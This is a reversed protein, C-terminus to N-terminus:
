FYSSHNGFAFRTNIDYVRRKTIHSIHSNVIAVKNRRSCHSCIVHLLGGLADMDVGVADKLRLPVQCGACNQLGAILAPFDVACTLASLPTLNATVVEEHCDLVIESDSSEGEEEEEDDDSDTKDEMTAYTHDGM